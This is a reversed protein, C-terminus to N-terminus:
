EPLSRYIIDLDSEYFYLPLCELIANYVEAALPDSVNEDSALDQLIAKVTNANLRHILSEIEITLPEM